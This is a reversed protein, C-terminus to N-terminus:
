PKDDIHLIKDSDRGKLPRSLALISLIKWGALCTGKLTGSINSPGQTTLAAVPIEKVWFGRRYAKIQMEVTWGFDKDQMNLQQLRQYRIARFPGLDTCQQHWLHRIIFSALKNGFRQQPSLAGPQRTGLERSGIVMDYGQVLPLLLAESECSDEAGDGNLFLVFDTDEITSIAKLCAAGYGKHAEHVVTAGAIHAVEATADTSGNDCVIIEDILAAGAHTNAMLNQVVMAINNAENLAPIVVTVRYGKYM